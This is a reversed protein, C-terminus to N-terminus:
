SPTRIVDHEGLTFRRAVAVTAWSALAFPATFVPIGAGMALWQLLAALAAAALAARPGRPMLALAALAGNF